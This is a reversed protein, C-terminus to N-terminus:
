SYPFIDNCRGYIPVTVCGIYIFVVIKNCGVAHTTVRLYAEVTHMLKEKYAIYAFFLTRNQGFDTRHNEFFLFHIQISKVEIITYVIVGLSRFAHSKLRVHMCEYHSITWVMGRLGFIAM